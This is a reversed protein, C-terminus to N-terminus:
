SVYLPNPDGIPRRPLGIRLPNDLDPDLGGGLPNIRPSAGFGPGRQEPQQEPRLMDESFPISHDSGRGSVPNGSASQASSGGSTECRNCLSVANLSVLYYGLYVLFRFNRYVQNSNLLQGGGLAMVGVM